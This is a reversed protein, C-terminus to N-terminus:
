REIRSHVVWTRSRDGSYSSGVLVLTGDPAAAIAPDLLSGAAYVAKENWTKGSDKSFALWVESEGTGPDDWVEQCLVLEDGTSVLHLTWSQKKHIALPEVNVPESWSRGGDDSWSLHLEAGSDKGPESWGRWETESVERWAIYIRDGVVLGATDTIVAMPWKVPTLWQWNNGGDTSKLLDVRDGCYPRAAVWAPHVIILEDGTSFVDGRGAGWLRLRPHATWNVLDDSSYLDTGSNHMYTILYIRGKHLCSHILHYAHADEFHTIPIELRRPESWTKADKSESLWYEFNNCRWREPGWWIGDQWILLWRDGFWCLTNRNSPLRSPKEIVVRYDEPLAFEKLHEKVMDAMEKKLRQRADHLRRKITGQPVELMAACEVISYGEMYFLTVADAQMETLTALADSIREALANAQPRTPATETEPLPLERSTHRNRMRRMRRAQNRAIGCVWPGFRSPDSLTHLQRYAAIFSEQLVDLAAERDAVVAFAVAHVARQYRKVLEDFAEPKGSVAIEVLGADSTQTSITESTM